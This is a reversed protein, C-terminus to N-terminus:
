ISDDPIGKTKAKADSTKKKADAAAPKAKKKLAAKPQEQTDPAPTAPEEASAAFGAGAVFLVALLWVISKATHM